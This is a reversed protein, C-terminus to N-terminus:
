EEKLTLVVGVGNYAVHVFGEELFWKEVIEEVKRDYLQEEKELVVTIIYEWASCCKESVFDGRELKAVVEKYLKVAKEHRRSAEMEKEKDIKCTKEKRKAIVLTKSALSNRSMM